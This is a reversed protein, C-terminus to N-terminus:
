KAPTIIALIRKSFITSLFAERICQVLAELYM